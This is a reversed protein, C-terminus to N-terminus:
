SIELEGRRNLCLSRTRGFLTLLTVGDAPFTVSIFMVNELFLFTFPLSHFNFVFVYRYHPSLIGVYILFLIKSFMVRGVWTVEAAFMFSAPPTTVKNM